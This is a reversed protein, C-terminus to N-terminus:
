HFYQFPIHVAELTLFAVLFAMDLSVVIHEQFTCSVVVELLVVLDVLFTSEVLTLPELLIIFTDVLNLRGMPIVLLNRHFAFIGLLDELEDTLLDLETVAAEFLWHWCQSSPIFSLFCLLELFLLQTILLFNTGCKGLLCVLILLLFLMLLKFWRPLQAISRWQITNMWQKRSQSSLYKRLMGFIRFFLNVKIFM